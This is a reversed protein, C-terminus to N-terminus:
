NFYIVSLIYIIIYVMTTSKVTQAQLVLMANVPTPMQVMWVGAMEVAISVLATM